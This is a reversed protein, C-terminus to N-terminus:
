LFRIINPIKEEKIAIVPEGLPKYFGFLKSNPFQDFYNDAVQLLSEQGSFCKWVLSSGFPFYGPAHPIGANEFYSHKKRFYLTILVVLGVLLAFMFM